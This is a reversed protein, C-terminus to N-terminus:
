GPQCDHRSDAPGSSRLRPRHFGCLRDRSRRSRTPDMPEDDAPVRRYNVNSLDRKLCRVALVERRGNLTVRDARQHSPITVLWGSGDGAPALNEIFTGAPWQAVIEAAVPHLPVPDHPTHLRRHPRTGGTRSREGAGRRARLTIGQSPLIRAVQMHSIGFGLKLIEGQIRCYAWRPNERALQLTLARREPDRM